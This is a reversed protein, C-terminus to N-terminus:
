SAVALADDRPSASRMLTVWLAIVLVVETIWTAVVAGRWGSGPILLVNLVVNLVTASLVIVVRRRNHGESTLATAPFAQLAVLLPFPTLWLLVTATEDYGEGLIHPLLPSAVALVGGAVVGYLAAIRVLRIALAASAGPTNAGQWFRALSAAIMGRIPVYVLQLVRNAAAYLGADAGFGFRVLLVKDADSRLRETGWGLTLGLGEVADGRDPASAALGHPHRRHVVVHAVVAAGVAAVLYLWAWDTLSPDDIGLLLVLVAVLRLGSQAAKMVVSLELEETAQVGAQLVDVYSIALLEALALLAVVSWDLSPLLPRAIVVVLLISLPGGTLVMGRGLRLADRLPVGEAGHRKQLLNPAGLSAFPSVFFIVSLAGVLLGFRAPEFVYTLLVMVVATVGFQILSAGSAWATNRSLRADNM